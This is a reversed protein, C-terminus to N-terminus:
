PPANRKKELPDIENFVQAILFLIVLYSYKRGKSILLLNRRPNLGNHLRTCDVKMFSCTNFQSPSIKLIEFSTIFVKGEGMKRRHQKM